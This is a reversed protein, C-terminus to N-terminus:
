LSQTKLFFLGANLGRLLITVAKQTTALSREAQIAQWVARMKPLDLYNAAESQAVQDLAQDVAAGVECLRQGLDAAQRGRQRNLRVANPLRGAMASRILWRDQGDPGTFFRDPVSITYMLVRKDLTPDRVEM